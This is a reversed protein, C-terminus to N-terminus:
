RGRSRARLRDAHDDSSAVGISANSGVSIDVAVGYVGHRAAWEQGAKFIVEFAKLPLERAAIQNAPKNPTGPDIRDVGGSYLGDIPGWSSAPYKVDAQRPRQLVTEPERALEHHIAKVSAVKLGPADFL